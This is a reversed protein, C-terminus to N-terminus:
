MAKRAVLDDSEAHLARRESHGVIVYHCQWDALMAASVEGTFAGQAHESCDQGGWAIVSGALQQGALALYPFPLCVAVDSSWPARVKLEDLLSACFARTGNMKWNGVVLTKRM